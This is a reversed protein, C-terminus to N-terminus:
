GKKSCYGSASVQHKFVILYSTVEHRTLIGSVKGGECQDRLQQSINDVFDNDFNFHLFVMKSVVASIKKTRKEPIETLSVTQLSVCSSLMGIFLAFFAMKLRLMGM